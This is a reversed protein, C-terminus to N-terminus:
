ILQYHFLNHFTIYEFEKYMYTFRRHITASTPLTKINTLMHLNMSVLTYFVFAVHSGRMGLDLGNPTTLSLLVWILISNCMFTKSHKIIM